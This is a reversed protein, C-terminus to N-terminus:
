FQLWGKALALLLGGVIVILSIFYIRHEPPLLKALFGVDKVYENNPEDKPALQLLAAEHVAKPDIEPQSPMTIHTNVVVPVEHRATDEDWDDADKLDRLALGAKDLPDNPDIGGM